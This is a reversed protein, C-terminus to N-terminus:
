SSSTRRPGNSNNELRGLTVRAIFRDASQSATVLSIAGRLSAGLTQSV